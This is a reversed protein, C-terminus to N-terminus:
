IPPRVTKVENLVQRVTENDEFVFVLKGPTKKSPEINVPSQGRQMITQAVKLSRIAKTKNM